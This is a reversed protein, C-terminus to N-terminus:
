ANNKRTFIRPLLIFVSLTLVLLILAVGAGDKTQYSGMLSYLYWPLTTIEDSGFLAIVGLDGLSLCFSLAFVYLVSSKLYPWECYLWRKNGKLNLSFCLKDYRQAINLMPPYLISLAFPLSMLINACLVAGFAWLSISAEFKQSFLFFGLGLILSPIALYINGSFAILINIFSRAKSEKIRHKINFNRRADSILLAFIVTLISSVTAIALSTLLSKLFVEDSFIRKFDAGLGDVVISILPTIFLFTLFSIIFIQFIRLKKTENWPIITSSTKINSIGAKFNASLFVLVMTISLQILALKLALPIDFDIRVAEYIAVELTNYSPSGGLTLVIAFSTFCLLFITSSISRLSLKIAPYEILRFRQLASFNLSKALKYREKPISEFVHLLSRAAFSANLYVHAILIGGLGYISNEFSYDFLYLLTRNLWGNQGLVTIIGFVVILTPLILSSSLLAILYSRGKFSKQHALAWALLTGIVISLVTSLFAQYITFKVLGLTRNTILSSYFDNSHISLFLIYFVAFALLLLLISILGGPIVSFRFRYISNLLM